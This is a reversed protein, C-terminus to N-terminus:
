EREHAVISQLQGELEAHTPDEEAGDSLPIARGTQCLVELLDMADSMNDAELHNAKLNVRAWKLTNSVPRM